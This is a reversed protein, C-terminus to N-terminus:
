LMGSLFEDLLQKLRAKKTGGNRANSLLLPDPRLATCQSSASGSSLDAL